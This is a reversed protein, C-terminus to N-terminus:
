AGVGLAAAYTCLTDSDANEGHYETWPTFWDQYELWARRPEGHAGLEGVIRVAPGGTCLLIIFGDREPEDGYGCPSFTYTLELPDEWIRQEADERSECDGAADELEALERLMELGEADLPEDDVNRVQEFTDGAEDMWKVAEAASDTKDTCDGNAWVYHPGPLVDRLEELRDWDMELAAVMEAVSSMQASAQERASALRSEAQEKQEAQQAYEELMDLPAGAEHDHLMERVARIAARIQEGSHKM